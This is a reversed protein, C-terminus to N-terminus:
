GDSSTQLRRLYSCSEFGDFRIVIDHPYLISFGTTTNLRLPWLLIGAEVANAALITMQDLARRVKM